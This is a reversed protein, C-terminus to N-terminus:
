RAALKEELIHLASAFSSLELVDVDTLTVGFEQEITLVLTLHFFSDWAASNIQTLQQVPVRSDSMLSAFLAELRNKVDGADTTTM